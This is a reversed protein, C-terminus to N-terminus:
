EMLHVNLVVYMLDFLDSYEDHLDMDMPYRMKKNSDLTNREFLQKEDQMLMLFVVEM